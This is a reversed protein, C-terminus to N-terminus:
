TGTAITLRFDPQVAFAALVTVSTQLARDLMYGGTPTGTNSSAQSFIGMETLSIAADLDIVSTVRFINSAAGEGLTGTARTHDPNYQTTLESTLGSDSASELTAGQGVGPYRM